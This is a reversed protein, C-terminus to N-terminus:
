RSKSERVFMYNSASNYPHEAWYFSRWYPTMNIVKSKWKADGKIAKGPVTKQYFFKRVDPDKENKDYDYLVDGGILNALTFVDRLMSAGAPVADLLSSAESLMHNPLNYASQEM